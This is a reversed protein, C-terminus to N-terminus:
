APDPHDEKKLGLMQGMEYLNADFFPEVDTLCFTLHAYVEMAVLGYLQAWLRLFVQFAGIPVDAVSQELAEGLTTRFVRLQEVLSGPLEGETPVPFPQARWLEFFIELFVRGFQMGALEVADPAGAPATLDALSGVPTAFVLGYERPHTVAWTRFEKAVTVIRKAPGETVASGVAALHEALEAYVDVVLAEVLEEHNPFYRYLGPATMGMERAIARLTVASPGEAVLLRRATQKIEDVTAARTRERRTARLSADTV